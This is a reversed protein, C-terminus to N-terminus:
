GSVTPLVFYMVMNSGKIISLLLWDRKMEEDLIAQGTRLGGISSRAKLVASASAHVILAVVPSLTAFWIRHIYTTEVGYACALNLLNRRSTFPVSTM